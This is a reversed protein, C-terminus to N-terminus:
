TEKMKNLMETQAREVDKARLFGMYQSEEELAKRGEEDLAEMLADEVAAGAGQLALALTRVDTVKLLRQRQDIPLEALQDFAPAISVERRRKSRTEERIANIVRERYKAGFFGRLEISLRRGWSAICSEEINMKDYLIEDAAKKIEEWHEASNLEGNLQEWLLLLGKVILVANLFAGGRYDGAALYAAFMRELMETPEFHYIGEACYIEDFELLCARFFPDREEEALSIFVLMGERRIDGWIRALKAVTELCADKEQDTCALREADYIMSDLISINSVEYM